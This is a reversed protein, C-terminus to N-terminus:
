CVNGTPLLASFALYFLGLAVPFLVLVVRIVHGGHGPGFENDVSQIIDDIFMDLWQFIFWLEGPHYEEIRITTPSGMIKDGESILSEMSNTESVSEVAEETMQTKTVPATYTSSPYFLLSSHSTKLPINEGGADMM